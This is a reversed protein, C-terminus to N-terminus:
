IHNPYNMSTSIELLQKLQIRNQAMNSEEISKDNLNDNSNLTQNIYQDNLALQQAQLNSVAENTSRDISKNQKMQQNDFSRNTADYPQHLSDRSDENLKQMNLTKDYNTLDPSISFKHTISNDKVEQISSRDWLQNKMTEDSVLYHMDKNISTNLVSGGYISYM